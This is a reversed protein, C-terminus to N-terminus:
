ETPEVLVKIVARLYQVGALSSLPSGEQLPLHKIFEDAGMTKIAEILNSPIQSRASAAFTVSPTQNRIALEVFSIAQQLEAKSVGFINKRQQPADLQQQQQPQHQAPVPQQGQPGSAAIRESIGQIMPAAAAAIKEFASPEAAEENGSFGQLAEKLAALKTLQDLPGEDKQSRLAVLEQRTDTLSQSVTQLQMNLGEIRGQYAIEISRVQMEASAKVTSLERLAAAEMREERKLATDERRRIEAEHNEKLVRMESAFQTRLSDLRAGEGDIMKEILKDQFGTQPPRNVLSSLQENLSRITDQMSALQTQYPTVLAALMDPDISKHNRIEDTLKDARKREEKTVEALMNMAQETASPSAPPQMVGALIKAQELKPLTSEDVKPPGSITFVKSGAGVWNAKDNMRYVFARFKGGGYLSKVQEETITDTFETLYGKIAVDRGNADPVTHPWDRFLKVKLQIDPGALTKLYEAISSADESAVEVAPDRFAPGKASKKKDVVTPLVVDVEIQEENQTDM